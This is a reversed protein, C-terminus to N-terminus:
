TRERPAPARADTPRPPCQRSGSIRDRTHLAAGAEPAGANGCPGTEGPRRLHWQLGLSSFIIILVPCVTLFAAALSKKLDHLFRAPGPQGAGNREGHQALAGPQHRKKMIAETM